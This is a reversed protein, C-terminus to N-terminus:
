EIEIKRGGHGNSKALEHIRAREEYGKVAINLMARLRELRESTSRLELMEQKVEADIEMAAAVLFSLRQPETSSIDPLTAREDNITRVAQAIRTFTEAVERAPAALLEENEEDDEFYSVKAVLYPDGREVYSEIRYRIVGLTLINSRGDPFTQVETVEAVCGVHGAPPVESEATSPDFYALGFLSNAVRIDELMKRYRPEFIHLPLPVGPFLVVPLPFLPLERQGRVKDTAESM